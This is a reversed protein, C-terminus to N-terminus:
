AQKRFSLPTQGTYKRFFRSFYSTDNFGLTYAIEKVDMPTLSLMRKAELLIRERIHEGATRGSEKKCVLNLYNATVHLQRAYYAVDSHQAYNNELLLLFRNIIRNTAATTQEPFTNNYWRTLLLLILQLRHHIINLSLSERKDTETVLAQLEQELQRFHTNDLQIVPTTAPSFFPWAQASAPLFDPSFMVQYGSTNKSLRWQHAQGPALFFVTHRAVSYDRFDITHTGSGQEIILLMYFDHKHAEPIVTMNIPKHRVIKFDEKRFPLDFIQEIGVTPLMM